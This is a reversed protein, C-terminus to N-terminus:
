KAARVIPASKNTTSAAYSATSAVFLADMTLEKMQEITQGHAVVRAACESMRQSSRTLCLLLLDSLVFSRRFTSLLSTALILRIGRQAQCLRHSRKSSWCISSQVQALETIRADKHTANAHLRELQVAQDRAAILTRQAYSLSAGRELETQM